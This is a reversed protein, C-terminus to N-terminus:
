VTSTGDLLLYSRQPNEAKRERKLIKCNVTFFFLKGAARHKEFFKRESVKFMGHHLVDIYADKM